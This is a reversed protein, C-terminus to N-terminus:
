VSKNVSYVDINVLVESGDVTSYYKALVWDYVNLDEIIGTVLTDSGIAPINLTLDTNGFAFKRTLETETDDKVSFLQVSNARAISGNVKKKYRTAFEENTYSAIKFMWTGGSFSLDVTNAWYEVDNRKAVGYTTALTYLPGDSGYGYDESESAKIFVGNMDETNDTFKMQFQYVQQIGSDYLQFQYINFNESREGNTWVFTVCQDYPDFSYACAGNGEFERFVSDSPTRFKFTNFFARTVNTVIANTDNSMKYVKLKFIKYSTSESVYTSNNDCWLVPIIKYIKETTSEVVKFTVKATVPSGIPEKNEDLNPYYSFTKTFASGITANKTPTTDWTAGLQATDLKDTIDKIDGNSYIARVNYSVVSDILENPLMPYIENSSNQVVGQRLVSVKLGIVSRSPIATNTILADQAQFLKTDILFGDSNFFDVVYFEGSVIQDFRSEGSVSSIEFVSAAGMRTYITGTASDNVKKMTIHYDSLEGDELLGSVYVYEKNKNLEQKRVTYFYYNEPFVVSSDPYMMLNARDIYLKYIHGNNYASMLQNQIGTQQYKALLEANEKEKSIYKYETAGTLENKYVKCVYVYYDDDYFQEGAYPTLLSKNLELVDAEPLNCIYPNSKFLRVNAINAAFRGKLNEDSTVSEYAQREPTTESVEAM